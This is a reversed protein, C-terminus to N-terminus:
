LKCRRCRISWRTSMAWAGAVWSSLSRWDDLRTARRRTV